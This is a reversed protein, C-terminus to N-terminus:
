IMVSWHILWYFVAHWMNDVAFWVVNISDECLKVHRQADYDLNVNLEACQLFRTFFIVQPGLFHCGRIAPLWKCNFSCSENATVSLWKLPPMPRKKGRRDWFHSAESDVRVCVIFAFQCCCFFQQSASESAFGSGPGAAETWIYFLADRNVNPRSHVMLTILVWCVIPLVFRGKGDVNCHGTDENQSMWRKDDVLKLSKRYREVEACHLNTQVRLSRIGVEDLVEPTALVSTVVQHHSSTM